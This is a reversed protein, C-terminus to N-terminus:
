YRPRGHATVTATFLDVTTGHGSGHSGHDRRATPETATSGHHRAVTGHVRRGRYRYFRAAKGTWSDPKREVGLHATHIPVRPALSIKIGLSSAKLERFRVLTFMPVAAMLAQPALESDFRALIITRSESRMTRSSFTAEAAQYFEEKYYISAHPPILPPM